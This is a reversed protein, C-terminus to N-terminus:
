LNKKLRNFLIYQLAISTVECYETIICIYDTSNEEEYHDFHDFYKVINEHNVKLYTIFENEASDDSKELMKMAKSNSKM